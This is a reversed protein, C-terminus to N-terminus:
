YRRSLPPRRGSKPKVVVPILASPKWGKIRATQWAVYDEARKVIIDIRAATQENLQKTVGTILDGTMGYTEVKQKLDPYEASIFWVEQYSYDTRVIDKIELGGRLEFYGGRNGLRLRYVETSNLYFQGIVRNHDLSKRWNAAEKRLEAARETARAIAGKILSIDQEFPLAKAGWCVGSFFGCRVTYGHQSLVGAPLKQRHGCVQCHGEHTAKKM